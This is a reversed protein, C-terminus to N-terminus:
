RPRQALRTLAITELRLPLTLYTDRARNERTRWTSVIEEEEKRKYRKSNRPRRARMTRKITMKLITRAEDFRNDTTEFAIIPVHRRGQEREIETEEERVMDEEEKNKYM